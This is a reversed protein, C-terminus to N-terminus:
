LYIQHKFTYHIIKLLYQLKQHALVKTLMDSSNENTAINFIKIIGDACQQRIWLQPLQLHRHKRLSAQNSALLNSARNDGYLCPTRIDACPFIEKFLNVLGILQKACWSAATLEAECTSLSITSQLSSKGQVPYLQDRIVSM